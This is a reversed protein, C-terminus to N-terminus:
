YRFYNNYKGSHYFYGSWYCALIFSIVLDDKGSQKGSFFKKPKAFDSEKLIVAFDKMQEQLLKLIDSPSHSVCVLEHEPVIEFVNEVLKEKVSSTALAKMANTTEFGIRCDEKESMVLYNSLGENRFMENLHASELGYNAELIFVKLSNYFHSFSNLLAVHRLVLNHNERPTKSPFSELGIVIFKGGYRLLSCMAFDSNRGCGNPDIAIFIQPYDVNADVFFREKEFLGDM